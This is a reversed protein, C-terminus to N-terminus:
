YHVGPHTFLKARRTHAHECAAIGGLMLMALVAKQMRAGRESVSRIWCIAEYGLALRGSSHPFAMPSLAVFRRFERTCRPYLSLSV